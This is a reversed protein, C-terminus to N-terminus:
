FLYRDQIMDLMYHPCVMKALGGSTGGFKRFQCFLMIMLLFTYIEDAIIDAQHPTTLKPTIAASVTMVVDLIVIL